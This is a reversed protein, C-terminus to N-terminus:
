DVTLTYGNGPLTGPLNQRDREQIVARAAGARFESTAFDTAGKIDASSTLLDLFAAPDSRRAIQEMRQLLARIKVDDADAQGAAGALAPRVGVPGASGLCTLAAVFAAVVVIQKM